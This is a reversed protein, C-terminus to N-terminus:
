AACMWLTVGVCANSFMVGSSAQLPFLGSMEPRRTNPARAKTCMGSDWLFFSLERDSMQMKM